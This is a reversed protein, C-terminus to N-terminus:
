VMSTRPIWKSIRKNDDHGKYCFIQNVAQKSETDFGVLLPIAM